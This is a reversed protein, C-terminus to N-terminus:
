KNMLRATFVRSYAAPNKEIESATSRLWAAIGKVSRKPIEPLGYVVLRATYDRANKM